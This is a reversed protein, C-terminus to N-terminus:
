SIVGLVISGISAFTVDLEERNVPFPLFNKQAGVFNKQRGKGSAM